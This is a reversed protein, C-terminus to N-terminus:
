RGERERDQAELAALQDAIEADTLVTGLRLSNIM